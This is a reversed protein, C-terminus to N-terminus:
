EDMILLMKFLMLVYFFVSNVRVFLRWASINVYMM